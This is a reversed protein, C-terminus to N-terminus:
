TAILECKQIRRMSAKLPTLDLSKVVFDDATKMVYNSTCREHASYIVVAPRTRLNLIQFMTDIGNTGQMSLDLVVVDPLSVRM